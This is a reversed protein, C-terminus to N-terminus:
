RAEERRRAVGEVETTLNVAKHATKLSGAFFINDSDFPNRSSIPIVAVLPGAM